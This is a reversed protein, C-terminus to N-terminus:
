NKKDPKDNIIPNLLWYNASWDQSQSCDASREPSTDPTRQDPHNSLYSSYPQAPPTDDWYDFVIKEPSGSKPHSECVIVNLDDYNFMGMRKTFHDAIYCTWCRPTPGLFRGINLSVSLCSWGNEESLTGQPRYTALYNHAMDYRSILWDKGNQITQSDCCCNAYLGWFDIMSVPNNQVFVYTPLLSQKQLQQFKATSNGVHSQVFALDGVPDRSAWRGTSPDFYAQVNSAAFFAVAGLLIVKKIAKM